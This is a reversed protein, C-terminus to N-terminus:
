GARRTLLNALIPTFWAHLVLVAGVVAWRERGLAFLVLGGYFEVDRPSVARVLWAGAGRLTM